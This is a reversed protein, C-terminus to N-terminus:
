VHRSSLTRLVSSGARTRGDVGFASAVATVTSGVELREVILMRSRPTTRANEHIGMRPKQTVDRTHYGCGRM